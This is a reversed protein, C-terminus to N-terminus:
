EELQAAAWLARLRRMEMIAAHMRWHAAAGLVGRVVVAGAGAQAYEQLNQAVVGGVAVVCPAACDASIQRLQGRDLRRAPFFSVARVGTALLQHAAHATRVGPLYLVGQRRCLHDIETVYQSTMVFQAGADIAALAQHSTALLGAGVLMSAGYRHRLEAVIAWPQRSGPTIMVATIPTAHLADGVDLMLALPARCRIAAIIGSQKIQQLMWDAGPM